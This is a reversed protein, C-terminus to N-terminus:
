TISWARIRRGLTGDKNIVNRKYYWGDGQDVNWTPVNKMKITKVNYTGKYGKGSTAEVIGMLGKDAPVEFVVFSAITDKCEAVLRKRLNVISEAKWRLTKLSGPYNRDREYVEIMYYKMDAM